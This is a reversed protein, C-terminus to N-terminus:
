PRQMTEEGGHSKRGLTGAPYHDLCLGQTPSGMHTSLQAETGLMSRSVAMRLAGM